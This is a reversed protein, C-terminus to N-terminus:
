KAGIAFPLDELAAIFVVKIGPRKVRVMRGLSAGNPKGVPLTVTTVPVRVRSDAEAADLAIIPDAFAVTGHPVPM